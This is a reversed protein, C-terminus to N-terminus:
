INGYDSLIAGVLVNTWLCFLVSHSNFCLSHMLWHRVKLNTYKKLIDQIERIKFTSLVQTAGSGIVDFPKRGNVDELGPDAGSELLMEVVATHGAHSAAFLPTFGNTAHAANIKAKKSILYRVIDRHGLGSAM